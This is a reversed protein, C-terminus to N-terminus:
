SRVEWGDTTSSPAEACPATASSFPFGDIEDNVIEHFNLIKFPYAYTEDGAVYGLVLDSPALWDGASVDGYVPEDIPPIADLLRARLEPTSESLPVSGGDFTDFHVDDLPVSHSSLDVEPPDASAEETPAAVDGPVDGGGEDGACAPAVLAIGALLAALRWSRV